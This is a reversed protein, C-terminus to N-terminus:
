CGGCKLSFCWCLASSRACLLGDAEQSSCQLACFARCTNHQRRSHSSHALRTSNSDCLLVSSLAARCGCQWLEWNPLPKFAAEFPSTSLEKKVGSGDDPQSYVQIHEEYTGNEREKKQVVECKCEWWVKVYGMKIQSTGFQRDSINRMSSAGLYFHM